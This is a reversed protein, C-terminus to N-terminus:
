HSSQLPYSIMLSFSFYPGVGFRLGKKHIVYSGVFVGPIYIILFVISLLNIEFNSRSYYVIAFTAVPSFSNWLMANSCSLISFVFLIMWRRKYFIDLSRNKQHFKEEISPALSLAKPNDM